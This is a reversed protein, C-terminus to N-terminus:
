DLILGPIAQGRGPAPRVGYESDYPLTTVICSLEGESLFLERDRLWYIPVPVLLEPIRWANGSERLERAHAEFEIPLVDVSIAGRRATFRARMEEDSLDITYCGLIEQIEALASRGDALERQWEQAAIAKQYLAEVAACLDGDTILQPLEELMDASWSLLEKGYVRESRPSWRRFVVVPAPMLDGRRNVRGMRQVLADLPAVETILVDYSIDLSVEVVQTAVVVSGPRPQEIVGEKAIRDRLIFRSHLLIPHLDEQSEKLHSYFEQADSVTNAVVLVSKGERVFRLAIDPGQELLDGDRLEIRHRCRKWLDPEAEVLVGPPFLQLLSDPLTASALALREPRERELAELLLGLTYPEYAHIEDLLVTARRALARKEEWHRGHLHALLYQDLTAVTVPRAFVSGFLRADLPNEESESQLVYSARGHALGVSQDGYVRRLRRWMANTTAQTPLLYVIREANKAWLLLAETKGAGTPARLWLVESRSEGAAQQFPKLPASLKAMHAQVAAPGKDIFVASPEYSGASVLWDALHLVAKVMAFRDTPQRQLVDRLTEQKGGFSRRKDLLQQAPSASLLAQVRPWVSAATLGNVGYSPLLACIDAVAAPLQELDYDAKEFDRYLNPGLPSHHTLVAATAELDLNDWGYEKGLLSEAVLVFPLSALAHPYAKKCQQRLYAQFSRTGKGIDHFACALVAKIRLPEPLRLRVAIESGLRTVDSLHAILAIDEKALLEAM